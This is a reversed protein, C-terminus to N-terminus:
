EDRADQVAADKTDERVTSAEQPRPGFRQVVDRKLRDGCLMLALKLEKSITRESLKLEAAIDQLRMGEVRSAFLIRRRQPTLEAFALKLAEVDEVAEIRRQPDPTEDVFGLVTDLEVMNAWRRDRRFSMRAINTAITLLYHKPSRVAGIQAPRELRLYTEQLAERAVDESGLHRTLQKKLEDYQDVLFRRLIAVSAASNVLFADDNM